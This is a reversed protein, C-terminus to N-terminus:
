FPATSGLLVSSSFTPMEKRVARDRYALLEKWLAKDPGPKYALNRCLPYLGGGVVTPWPPGGWRRGARRMRSGDGGTSDVGSEIRSAAPGAACGAQPPSSLVVRDLLCRARGSRGLGRARPTSPSVVRGGGQGPGAGPWRRGPQRVM